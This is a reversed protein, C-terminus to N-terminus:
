ILLVELGLFAIWNQKWEGIAIGLLLIALNLIIAHHWWRVTVLPRQCHMCM